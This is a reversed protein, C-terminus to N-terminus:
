LRFSSIVRLSLINSHACASRWYRMFHKIGAYNISHNHPTHSHLAKIFFLIKLKGKEASTLNPIGVAVSLSVECFNIREVKRMLLMTPKLLHPVLSEAFQVSHSRNCFSQGFMGYIPQTGDVCIM